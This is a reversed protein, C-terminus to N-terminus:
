PHVPACVCVCVRVCACARVCVRVMTFEKGLFYPGGNLRATAMTKLNDLFLKWSEDRQEEKTKMFSAYMPVVLQFSPLVHKHTHTHTHTHTRTGAHTLALTFSLSLLCPCLWSFRLSSISHTHTHTHAHTPAHTPAPSHFVSYTHTHTHTHTHTNSQILSLHLTTCDLATHPHAANHANKHTKTRTLAHTHTRSHAHTHTCTVSHLDKHQPYRKSSPAWGCEATLERTPIRPFFGRERM